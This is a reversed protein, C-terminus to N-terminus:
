SIKRTSNLRMYLAMTTINQINNGQWCNPPSNPADISRPYRDRRGIIDRKSIKWLVELSRRWNRLIAINLCRNLRRSILFISREWLKRRCSNRLLLGFLLFRHHYGWLMACLCGRDIPTLFFPWVASWPRLWLSFGPRGQMLLLFGIKWRVPYWCIESCTSLSTLRRRSCSIRM